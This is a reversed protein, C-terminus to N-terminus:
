TKFNHSAGESHDKKKRSHDDMEIVQLGYFAIVKIICRTLIKNLAHYTEMILVYRNTLHLYKAESHDKKKRSHDDMEIVQLGYFAIVKIICRTLIIFKTLIKNLDLLIDSSNSMGMKTFHIFSYLAFHPLLKISISSEIISIHIAMDWHNQLGINSDDSFNGMQCWILPENNNLPELCVPCNGEIPRRKISAIAKLKKIQKESPLIIKPSNKFILRLEKTILAKLNSIPALVHCLKQLLPPTLVEDKIRQADDKMRTCYGENKYANKM